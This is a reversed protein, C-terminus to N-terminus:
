YERKKVVVVILLIIGGSAIGIILLLEMEGFETGGPTGNTPATSTTTPSTSPTTSTTTPDTPTTTPASGTFRLLWYDYGNPSNEAACCIALDGDSCEVIDYAFDNEEFGDILQDFEINGISDIVLLRLNYDQSVQYSSGCLAFNGTSLEIIGKPFDDWSDSYTKNWVDDGNTEVCIVWTDQENSGMSNNQAAILLKGDSSKVISNGCAQGEGIWTKNWLIGGSSNLRLLLVDTDEANFDGVYGTAAFGGDDCEVIDFTHSRTGFTSNWLKTGSDDIRLIHASPEGMTYGTAAYGGSSCEILSNLCGSGYEESWVRNGDQDTKVIWTQSSNSGAFLFGNDETQLVSYGWDIGPSAITSNWLHNGNADTRLLVVKRNGGSLYDGILAFGGDSCQVLGRCQESLGTGYTNNWLLFYESELSALQNTGDFCNQQNSSISGYPVSFLFFM